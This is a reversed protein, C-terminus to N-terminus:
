RGTVEHFFQEFLGRLSFKLETGDLTKLVISYDQPDVGVDAFICHLSVTPGESGDSLRTEFAMRKPDFSISRLRPADIGAPGAPGVISEGREGRQRLKGFAAV